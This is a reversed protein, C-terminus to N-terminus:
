NRPAQNRPEEPSKSAALFLDSQKAAQAELLALGDIITRANADRTVSYDATILTANRTLDAPLEIGATAPLTDIILDFQQDGLGSLESFTANFENALQEGTARTRNAVVAPIGLQELAVLAARATGGAGLVLAARRDNRRASRSSFDGPALPDRRAESTSIVLEAFGSVDTNEAQLSNDPMRVLTNVSKAREAAVSLKAGREIAFRFAEEKFPATISLGRPAFEDARLLREAVDRFDDTEITAYAANVGNARFIPNHLLPSRSHAAPNGVLAFIADPKQLKSADGYITLAQQLDLQGPAAGSKDDAAVFMLESGFFPALIRSYLGRAGMGFLTMRPKADLARLLRINDNFSQPTVALKFEWPELQEILKELYQPVGDWDHYSLLTKEGWTGIFSSIGPIWGIDVADHEVAVEVDIIDFGAGAAAFLEDVTAREDKQRARRTYMLEKTTANRFQELPLEAGPASFADVRLEVGVGDPLSAIREIAADATKEFVSVFIKSM